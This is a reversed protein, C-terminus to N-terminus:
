CEMRYVLVADHRRIGKGYVLIGDRKIVGWGTYYCEMGYVFM